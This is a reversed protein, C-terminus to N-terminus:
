VLHIVKSDSSFKIFNDFLKQMSPSSDYMCEPHWQVGVIFPHTVSEVAEIVGDSSIGTIRLNEGLAKICQHHFTNTYASEGCINYLMSSSSFTVKHSVDERHASLQVHNITPTLRLSMDQYITGGLAINLIQMGRCIALVPLKLSIIHRMLALHCTDAVIDTHGRDTLLEEGFLCPTIDDGGCYLFGDCIDTYRTYLSEDSTCPLLVPAGGSAEVAHIYTQPVFQRDDAFGCSVIGIMPKM